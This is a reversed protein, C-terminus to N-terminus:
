SFAHRISGPTTPEIPVAEVPLKIALVSCGANELISQATLGIGSPPLHHNAAGIVLLNYASRQLYACIANAPAGPIFHRHERAIGHQRAFDDFAQKRADYGSLDGQGLADTDYVSIVHLAAGCTSALLSAAEIISHNDSDGEKAQFEMDIAALFKGPIQTPGPQVYLVSVQSVSLFEWDQASLGCHALGPRAHMDTIILDAEIRRACAAFEAASSSARVIEPHVDVGKEQLLASEDTLWKQRLALKSQGVVDPCEVGAPGASEAGHLNTFAAIHLPVGLARALEGAYELGPCHAAQSFPALFLLRLPRIM